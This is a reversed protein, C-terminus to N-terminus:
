IWPLTPGRTMPGSTTSWSLPSALPLALDKSNLPVRCSQRHGDGTATTSECVEAPVQQLVTTANFLVAHGPDRDDCLWEVQFGVRHAKRDVLYRCAALQWPLQPSAAAASCDHWGGDDHLPVGRLRYTDGPGPNYLAFSATSSGPTYDDIQFERLALSTSNVISGITCSRTYPTHPMTPADPSYGSFRTPSTPLTCNYTSTTTPGDKSTTTQNVANGCQLDATLYGTGTYQDAELGEIGDSCNWTQRVGVLGYVRDLLIETSSINVPAATANSATCKVWPTIGAATAEASEDAALHCYFGEDNSINTLNLTLDYWTRTANAATQASHHQYVLNEIEWEPDESRDVCRYPLDAPTYPLIPLQPQINIPSSLGASVQSNGMICLTEEGRPAQWDDLCGQILPTEWTGNGAFLLKSSNGCQWTGQLRLDLTTLNFQFFLNPISCNHWLTLADDGKPDLDINEATCNAVVRTATNETLFRIDGMSGGSSGNVTVLAPNYIGWKPSTLSAEICVEASALEGSPDPFYQRGRIGSNGWAGLAFFGLVVGTSLMM